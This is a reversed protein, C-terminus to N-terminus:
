HETKLLLGWFLFSSLSVGLVPTDLKELWDESLGEYRGVDDSQRGICIRNFLLTHLFFTRFLSKRGM